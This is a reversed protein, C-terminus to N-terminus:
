FKALDGANMRVVIEAFRHTFAHWAVAAAAEDAKAQVYLEDLDFGQARVEDQDWGLIQAAAIEPHFQVGWAADGVRFAQYPCQESEALWVAGPPLETIIDVHHEIAPTVTPLAGFLPDDLAGTRLRIPVSGYEPAGHQGKVTGGAVHALIQGGLCIGLMPNGLELAQSILCRVAPLWPAQADDCPHLGGGLVLLAREGLETPVEAGAHAGVVELQVGAKRLWHGVLRSGYSAENQVVLVTQGRSDEGRNPGDDVIM